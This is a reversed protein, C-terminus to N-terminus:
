RYYRMWIKKFYIKNKQLINLFNLKVIIVFDSYLLSHQILRFSEKIFRKMQNREHSYKSVKKSIILGLRPYKLNNLLNLIIIEKTQFKQAYKFINRFEYSYLLRIKKSFFLRNRTDM